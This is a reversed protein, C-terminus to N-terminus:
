PGGPEPNEPEDGEFAEDEDDTFYKELFDCEIEVISALRMIALEDELAKLYKPPLIESAEQLVLLIDVPQGRLEASRCAEVLGSMMGSYKEHNHKQQKLFEDGFGVM